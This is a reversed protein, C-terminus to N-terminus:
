PGEEERGLQMGIQLEVENTPSALKVSSTEIAILKFGAIIEDPKLVKRYDSKSGEFFAMPGEGYNMTGVLAFAESKSARLTQRRETSPTYAPSRRQNFINHQAVIQFASFPPRAPANTPQAASVSCVEFGSSWLGIGLVLWGIRRGKFSPAQPKEPAQLNFNPTKRMKMITTEGATNPGPRQTSPEPHAAPRRQRPQKTGRKGVALGHSRERHWVSFAHHCQYQGLSRDPM